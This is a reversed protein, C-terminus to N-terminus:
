AGPEDDDPSEPTDPKTPESLAKMVAIYIKRRDASTTKDSTYRNMIEIMMESDTMQEVPKNGNKKKKAMREKWGQYSVVPAPQGAWAPPEGQDREPTPMALVNRPKLLSINIAVFSKSPERLDQSTERWEPYAIIFPSELVHKIVNRAEYKRGAEGLEVAYSNLCDYYVLPDAYKLVSLLNDFDSLSQKHFGEKAKVAALSKMIDIRQSISPNAKLAEVYFYAESDINGKYGEFAARTILAQAKYTRTQDIIRELSEVEYRKERCAFWVLYYQGILQYEKIPINTLVTSLECVKELQRFAHAVKIERVIRNGLDKYSEIGSLLAQYLRPLSSIILLSTDTHKSM